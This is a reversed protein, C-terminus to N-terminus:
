RRRGCRDTADGRRGWDCRYGFAFAATAIPGDLVGSVQFLPISIVGFAILRSGLMQWRILGRDDLAQKEKTAM